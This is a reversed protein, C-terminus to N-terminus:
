HANCSTCGVISYESLRPSQEDSGFCVLVRFRGKEREIEDGLSDGYSLEAGTSLLRTSLSWLIECVYRELDPREDTEVDNRVM